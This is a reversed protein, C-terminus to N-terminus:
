ATCYYDKHRTVQSVLIKVVHSCILRWCIKTIGIRNLTKEEKWWSNTSIMKGHTDRFSMGRFSPGRSILFVFLNLNRLEQWRFHKITVYHQYTVALFLSIKLKESLSLGSFIFINIRELQQGNVNSNSRCSLSVGSFIFTDSREPQQGHVNRSWSTCWNM